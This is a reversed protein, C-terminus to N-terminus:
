LNPIGIPFGARERHSANMGTLAYRSKSAAFMQEVSESGGGVENSRLRQGDETTRWSSATKSLDGHVTAIV